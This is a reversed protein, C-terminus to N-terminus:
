RAGEAGDVRKPEHSDACADSGAANPDTLNGAVWDRVCRGMEHWDVARLGRELLDDRTRHHSRYAVLVVWSLEVLVV